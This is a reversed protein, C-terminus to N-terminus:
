AAGASAPNHRGVLARCAAALDPRGADDCLAAARSAARDIDPDHYGTASLDARSVRAARALETWRQAAALAPLMLAHLMGRLAPQERVNHADRLADFRRLAEQADGRDAALVALNLDAWWTCTPGGARYYLRARTHHREADDLRGEWRAIEGLTTEIDGLLVPMTADDAARQARTLAVTAAVADGRHRHAVALSVLTHALRSREGAREFARAAREFCEGAAAPDGAELALQGCTRWVAGELGADPTRLRAVHEAARRASRDARAADGAFRWWSAAQLWGRVALRTEERGASREGVAEARRALPSAESAGESWLVHLMGLEVEDRVAEPVASARAMWRMAGAVASRVLDMNVAMLADWTAEAWAAAARVPEGAMGWWEARQIPAARPLARALRRAVFTLEGRRRLDGRLAAMLAADALAVRHGHQRLVGARVARRTAELPEPLGCALCARAWRSATATGGMLALVRLAAAVDRGMAEVRVRAAAALSSPWPAGARVTYGARSVELAQTDVWTGLTLALREASPEGRVAVLRAAPPTLAVLAGALEELEAATPPPVAVHSVGHGEDVAEIFEKTEPADPDRATLVALVPAAPAQRLISRVVAATRGAHEVGDFWWVIPRRSAACHCLGAIAEFLHSLAAASAEAALRAPAAVFRRLLAEDASGAVSAEFDWWRRLGEALAVLPATAADFHAVLSSAVATEDVRQCLWRALRQAQGPARGELVVAMPHRGACLRGVLSWLHRRVPAQGVFPVERLGFLRAGAGSLLHQPHGAPRSTGPGEDRAPRDAFSWGLLRGARDGSGRRWGDPFWLSEKPVVLAPERGGRASGVYWNPARAAGRPACVTGATPAARRTPVSLTALSLVPPATATSAGPLTTAPPSAARRWGASVSAIPPLDAPAEPLTAAAEAARAFRERPNKRTLGDLWREVGDPLAHRVRAPLEPLPERLHAEFVQARPREAFPPMGVLLEWMLCGLAYLDTWPGIAAADGRVQEPAMYPPTGGTAPVAAREGTRWAIGFDALAVFPVDGAGRATVLVNTPKIDRHVIGRAHAHALADLLQLAVARAVSWSAVPARLAGHAAWAMAYWPTPQTGFDFIPVVHPHVLAAIAAVEREFDRRRDQREFCKVAVIQGTPEHHTHWM